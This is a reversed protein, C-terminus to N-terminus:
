YKKSFRTTNYNQRTNPAGVILSNYVSNNRTNLIHRIVNKSAGNIERAIRFNLSYVYSINKVKGNELVVDGSIGVRHGGRITIYGSAFKIKILIYRIIM